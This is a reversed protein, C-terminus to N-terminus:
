GMIELAPSIFPFIAVSGLWLPQSLFLLVVDNTSITTSLCDSSISFFCGRQNYALADPRRYDECTQWWSLTMPFSPMSRHSTLTLTVSCGRGKKVSPTLEDEERAHATGASAM